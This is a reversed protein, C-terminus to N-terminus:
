GFAAVAPHERLAARVQESPQDLGAQDVLQAQRDARQQGAWARVPDHSARGAGGLRQRQGQGM